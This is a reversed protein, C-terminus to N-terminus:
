HWVNTGGAPRSIAREGPTAHESGHVLTMSSAEDHVELRDDIHTVGPMAQVSSMLRDRESALIQGRLSASGQNVVVEVARPHTVLGELKTRIRDRLQRDSDQVQSADSVFPARASAALDKVRDAARQGTARAYDSADHSMSDLKDRVMARRRRGMEPDLYYVAVATAACLGIAKLLSGGLSGHHRVAHREHARDSMSAKARDWGRSWDRGWEDTDDTMRDFETRAQEGLPRLSEEAASVSRRASDGLHRAQDAAWRGQEHMFAGAERSASDLQDLVRARRQPGREPDLYYMALAGLASMALTSSFNKMQTM